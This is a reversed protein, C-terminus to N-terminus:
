KPSGIMPPPAGRLRPGQPVRRVRRWTSAASICPTFVSDLLKKKEIDTDFMEDDSSRTQITNPLAVKVKKFLDLAQDFFIDFEARMNEIFTILSQYLKVSVSLTLNSKQLALNVRHFKSLVEKWMVLMFINEFRCLKKILGKAVAKSNNDQTSKESIFSNLVLIIKLFCSCLARIADNKASWRTGSARKLMIEDTETLQTNLEHWRYSSYVFYEYTKEVLNFFTAAIPNEAVANKGVLNLGHAGCPVFTALENVDRIRTQLSTYKGAMNNANDYCQGRCNKIDIENDKLYNHVTDALYESTHGHIPIFELFREIITGCKVYRICFTLQDVHTVDPTSDVSISYYQAESIEGHIKEKVHTAIISIFEECITTSM